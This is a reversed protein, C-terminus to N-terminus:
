YYDLLLYPYIATTANINNSEHILLIFDVGHISDEELSTDGEDM